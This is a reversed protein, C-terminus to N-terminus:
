DNLHDLFRTVAAEIDDTGGEIVEGFRLPLADLEALGRPIDDRGTERAILENLECGSLQAM